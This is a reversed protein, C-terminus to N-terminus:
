KAMELKLAKAYEATEDPPPPVSGYKASLALIAAQLYYSNAEAEAARRQANAAEMKAMTVTVSEYDGSM